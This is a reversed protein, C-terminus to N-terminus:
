NSDEAKELLKLGTDHAKDVIGLIDDGNIGLIDDGDIDLIDDGDVIEGILRKSLIPNAALEELAHQKLLEERISPWCRRFDIETAAPHTMFAARAAERMRHIAEALKNEEERAHAQAHAQNQVRKRKEVFLIWEHIRKRDDELSGPHEKRYRALSRGYDNGSVLRTRKIRKFLQRFM